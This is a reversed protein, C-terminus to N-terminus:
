ESLSPGILAFDRDSLEIGDHRSVDVHKSRLITKNPLQQREKAERLSEKLVRNSGRGTRERRASVPTTERAKLKVERRNFLLPENCFDEAHRILKFAFRPM